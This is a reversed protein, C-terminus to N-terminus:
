RLKLVMKIKHKMIKKEGVMQNSSSQNSPHNLVKGPMGEEGVLKVTIIRNNNRQVNEQRTGKRGVILANKLDGKEQSEQSLVIGQHTGKKGVILANRQDGHSRQSLVSM